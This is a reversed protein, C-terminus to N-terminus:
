EFPEDKFLHYIIVGLKTVVFVAVIAVWLNLTM